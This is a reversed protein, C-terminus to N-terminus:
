KDINSCVICELFLFLCVMCVDVNKKDIVNIKIYMYLLVLYDFIFM